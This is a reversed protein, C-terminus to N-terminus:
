RKSRANDNVAQQVKALIKIEIQRVRERTIGLIRGVRELTQPGESAVDLSCSEDPPVEDPELEPHSFRVNGAPTVTLYTNHSCSM